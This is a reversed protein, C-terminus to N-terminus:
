SRPVSSKLFRSLAFGALVSAAFAAAPQRRAFNNFGSVLEEVSHNSLASSASELKEAASHIFGATQPLEKGLEDAAGHVARSIGAIQDAGEAKANGAAQRAGDAAAGATDKLTNGIDEGFQQGAAKATKEGAASEHRTQEMAHDEITDRDEARRQM